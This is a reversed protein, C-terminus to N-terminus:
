DAAYEAWEEPTNVNQLYKPEVVMWPAVKVNELARAMKRMGNHFAAELGALASRRYAACLPEWAGEANVAAVAECAQSREASEMLGALFAGNVQPMDCAVVLSWEADSDALATLVGGLPGEGPYLDPIVRLDMGLYDDANGVLAVRGAAERVGAAVKEALTGNGFRLLAKNRGM